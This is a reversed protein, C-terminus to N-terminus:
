AAAKRVTHRDIFAEISSLKIGTARPGLRVTELEGTAILEYLRTNGVGLAQAAQRPRLLRPAITHPSDQM